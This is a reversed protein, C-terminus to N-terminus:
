VDRLWQNGDAYKYFGPASPASFSNQVSSPCNLLIMLVSSEVCITQPNYKTHTFRFNMIEDQM